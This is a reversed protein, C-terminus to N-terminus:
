MHTMFGGIILSHCDLGRFVSEFDTGAFSNPMGKNIVREGGTPAVQPAILFNDTDPDFVGGSAGKHQIHIVPRVAARAKDILKGGQELAAEVGDRVVRGSM